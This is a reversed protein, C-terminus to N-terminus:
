TSSSSQKLKTIKAIIPDYIEQQNRKLHTNIQEIDSQPNQVYELWGNLHGNIAYEIEKKFAPELKPRITKDELANKMESVYGELIKKAKARVEKDNTKEKISVEVVASPVKIELNGYTITNTSKNDSGPNMAVQLNKADVGIKFRQM